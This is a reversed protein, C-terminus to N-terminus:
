NQDKIAMISKVLGFKKESLIRAEPFLIQLEAKNLLRFDPITKKIWFSNALRLAPIMLRRPLFDVLPMWSHSEIPFHRAPTQVFYQRGVRRIEDAFEKQRQAAITQFDVNLNWVDMKSVTVHEIVSSCYVIDFSKDRFPLKGSERLLVANFGYKENGREILRAKIDAIYINEPNVGSNKVIRAINTGDESGLDLIKTEANIRLNNLFLEARAARAKRSASMVTKTLINMLGFKSVQNLAGAFRRLVDRGIFKRKAFRAAQRHKAARDAPSIYLM